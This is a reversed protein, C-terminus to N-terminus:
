IKDICLKEFADELLLIQKEDVKVRIFCIIKITKFLSM